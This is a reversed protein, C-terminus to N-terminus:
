GSLKLQELLFPSLTGEVSDLAGHQPAGPLDEGYKM